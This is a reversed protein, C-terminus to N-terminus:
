RSAYCYRCGHACTGYAGIDASEVCRCLSRQYKAPRPSFGGGTITSIWRADLCAGPLVGYKELPLKEACSSIDMGRECVIESLARCIREIESESPERVGFEKWFRQIRRYYDVFSIVVRRTHGCLRDAIYEFARIHHEADLGPALIIPDYRWVVSNEGFIATLQRFTDIREDLSPLNLEIDRGYANITYQFGCRYDNFTEAKTIIPAPNKTWFVICDVDPAALSLRRVQRPNYPNAVDVFGEALRNIFWESHFAPIDTRRSASIIM